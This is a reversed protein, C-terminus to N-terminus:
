KKKFDYMSMLQKIGEALVGFFDTIIKSGLTYLLGSMVMDTVQFTMPMLVTKYDIDFLMNAMGKGFSVSLLIGFVMALLAGVKLNPFYVKVSAKVVNSSAVVYIAYFLILTLYNTGM